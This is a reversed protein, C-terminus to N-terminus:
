AADSPAPQHRLRRRALYLVIVANLTLITFKLVNPRRVWTIIELPLLTSLGAVVVWEGWAKGLLLLVAELITALGDLWALVAAGTVTRASLHETIWAGVQSLLTGGESLTAAAREVVDSARAPAVTLLLAVALLVPAKLLKYAIILRLGLPRRTLPM